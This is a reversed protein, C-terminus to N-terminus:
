DDYHKVAEIIIERLLESVIEYNGSDYIRTYLKNEIISSSIKGLLFSVYEPVEPPALLLLVRGIQIAQHDMAIGEIPQSLDFIKFIPSSISSHVAHFLAIKTEPIALHTEKFREEVLHVLEGSDEPNVRQIIQKVTDHLEAKNELSLIEFSKLIENGISFLDNLNLFNKEKESDSTLARSKQQILRLQHRINELNKQDLMPNIYLYDLEKETTFIVDYKEQTIHISSQILEIKKLFPFNKRLNSMIFECSIRGRSSVLAASLPLVLDSRELTAVFHLSIFAIEMESFNKDFVERLSEKLHAYLLGYLRDDKGFEIELITSVKDILQRIKYSFDTDFKEMFLLVRGFGFYLIDYVSALYTIESVVFKTVPLETLLKNVFNLAQKSPRGLTESSVSYGEDLRLLVVLCFLQMLVKVKDTMKEPLDIRKFAENVQKFKNLDIIRLIKNNSLQNLLLEQISASNYIVAVFVPRINEEAGKLKLGRDRILVLENEFLAQEIQKLDSTVTPQSIGFYDTLSAISAKNEILLLLEGYLRESISYDILEHAQTLQNIDGKLFYGEDTNELSINEPLSKQLNNLDRYLTRRSTDTIEMMEAITLKGRKLFTQILKQERSTLFM